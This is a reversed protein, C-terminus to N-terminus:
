TAFEQADSAALAKGCEGCFKADTPNAEGCRRCLTNALLADRYRAVEAELADASGAARAPKGAPAAPAAAAAAEVAGAAPDSAGGASTGAPPRPPPAPAPGCAFERADEGLGPGSHLLPAAVAAIVLIALVAVIVIEM